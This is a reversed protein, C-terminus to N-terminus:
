KVTGSNSGAITRSLVGTADFVLVLTESDIDSSSALLGHQRVTTRAYTLLTQGDNTRVAQFPKGLLQQAGAITTVGPQLQAAAASDIARGTTTTTACGAATLLGCVLMARAIGLM